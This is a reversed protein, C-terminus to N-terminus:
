ENKEDIEESKGYLGSLKIANSIYEALENFERGEQLFNGIWIGVRDQTLGKEEWKLGAWLLIRIGTNGLKYIEGFSVGAIQEAQCTDNYSYRLNRIKGGLEIEVSRM